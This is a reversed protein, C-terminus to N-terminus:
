PGAHRQVLGCVSRVQGNVGILLEDAVPSFAVSARPNGNAHEPFTAFSRDALKVLQMGAGGGMAVARSDRSFSLTGRPMHYIGLPVKIGTVADFLHFTEFGRNTLGVFRGDPSFSISLHVGDSVRPPEPGWVLRGDSTKYISLAAYRGGVAVTAGSPSVAIASPPAPLGAILPSMAGDSMRYTRVTADSAGAYILEGNPAASVCHIGSGFTSLVTGDDTRHVRIVGATTVVILRGGPAFGYAHTSDAVDHLVFRPARTVADWIILTTVRSGYANGQTVVTSGDPSYAVGVVDHPHGTRLRAQHLPQGTAIDLVSLTGDAETVIVRGPDAAASMRLPPASRTWTSQLTWDSVRWVTNSAKGLGDSTGMVVKAGDASFIMPWHTAPGQNLPRTKTLTFDATKLVVFSADESGGIIFEGDPTPVSAFNMLGGADNGTTRRVLRGTGPEHAAVATETVIFLRTGGAGFFAGNIVDSTFRFTVRGSSVEHVRVDNYSRVLVFAGDKSLALGQEADVSAQSWLQTRQPLSWMRLEGGVATTALLKGGGDVAVHRIAAKHAEFAVASSLDPASIVGRGDQYGAPTVAGGAALSRVGAGFNEGICTSPVVPPALLDGGDGAGDAPSADPTLIVTEAAADPAGDSHSGPAADPM